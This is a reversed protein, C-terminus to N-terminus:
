FPIDISLCGQAEAWQWWVPSHPTPTTHTHTHTHTHVHTLPLASEPASPPTLVAVAVTQCGSDSLLTGIPLHVRTSVSLACGGRRGWGEPGGASGKKLNNSNVTLPASPPQPCWVFPPVPSTLVGANAPPANFRLARQALQYEWGSASGMVGV